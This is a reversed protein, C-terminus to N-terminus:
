FPHFGGSNDASKSAVFPQIFVKLPTKASVAGPETTLERTDLPAQAIASACTTLVNLWHLLIGRSLHNIIM